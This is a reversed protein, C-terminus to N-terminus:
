FIGGKQVFCVFFPPPWLRGAPEARPSTSRGTPRPGRKAAPGATGMARGVWTYGVHALSREIAESLLVSHTPSSHALRVAQTLLRAPPALRGPDATGHVLRQGVRRPGGSHTHARVPRGRSWIGCVAGHRDILPRDLRLSSVRTRRGPTNLGGGARPHTKVTLSM